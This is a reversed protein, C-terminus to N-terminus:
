GLEWNLRGTLYLQREAERRATLGKLRKKTGDPLTIVNWRLFEAAVEKRPHRLNQMRILTSKRAAGAGINFIWSVMADFECQKVDTILMLKLALESNGVDQLLWEHAQSSTIREPGNVRGTSGWGITWVGKPCKYGVLHLKEYHKILRYALESAEM